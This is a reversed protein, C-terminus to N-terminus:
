MFSHIVSGLLWVLLILGATMLCRRLWPRIFEEDEEDDDEHSGAVLEILLAIGLAHAMGVRPLGLPVMFWEWLDVLVYGRFLLMLVFGGCFVFFGMLFRWFLDDSRAM